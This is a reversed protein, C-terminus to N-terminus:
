SKCIATSKNAAKKNVKNKLEPPLPALGLRRMRGKALLRFFEPWNPGEQNSVNRNTEM